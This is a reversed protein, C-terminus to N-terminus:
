AAAPQGDREAVLSQVYDNIENDLWGNRNGIRVPKPFKGAKAKRWLTSANFDIGMAKLDAKTLIKPAM